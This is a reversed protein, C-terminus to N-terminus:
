VWLGRTAAESATGQDAPTPIEACGSGGPLVKDPNARTFPDFACRLLAQAELDHPGFMASMHGRKELGIGHEGSLVGGAALSAEVIRTGARQVRDWVGPERRDFLLLPHLNGDGAHFVNVVQLDEEAAIARVEALVEVLRTRPVVTDHLYYDPAIRAVAGFANKRGRWLADREDDDQARRVTRADRGQASTSVAAADAAVAAPRGELEVLLVAAADRPYGAGCFDEVAEALPGDMMELAAPVIGAGIIDSVCGAAQDLDDFTCLLTAVCEPLPVLRLLAATVIGMTGESGVFAGRLDYGAPEPDPGGIELVSGDSLVVQLGLVHASTVGLALCHPGGSNNAINGGITCAQQSSPDPAFRLGDAALRRNLDLNLVGPQVEARRSVPDVSLVRDMRTTSIVVARHLPVAGGALGTGSGRTVFPHGHAAAIRVCSAVDETTRPLCVVPPREGRLASADHSYPGLATPDRVVSAAGIARALEDALDHDPDDSRSRRRRM